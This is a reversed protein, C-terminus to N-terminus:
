PKHVDGHVRVAATYLQYVGSRADAWLVQFAGNGTGVLGFYEGGTPYRDGVAGNGPTGPCSLETSVRVEPLFTEGGDLSSTFYLDQCQNNPDNRRDQWAIGLVGNRSVALAATGRLTRPDSARDIRVPKSWSYGRDTSRSFYLGKEPNYFVEDEPDLTKGWDGWAAYLRDPFAESYVDAIIKPINRQRIEAVFFPPSFTRAGDTSFVVWLRPRKVRYHEVGPRQDTGWDHYAIVLTGDSLTVMNMEQLEMNSLVSPVPDSFSRGRDLSRSVSIATFSSDAAVRYGHVAAHYITGGEPGDTNDVLIDEQDYSGGRGEPVAVPGLWTLGGDRSRFVLSSVAPQNPQPDGLVSVYATGDRGFAVWADACSTPNIREPDFLSNLDSAQWNRGGDFTAFALCHLDAFPAQPEFAVMSAAVLNNPDVPNVALHPEVHPLDPRSMTVPTNPGVEILPVHQAVMTRTCLLLGPGLLVALKYPSPFNVATHVESSQFMNRCLGLSGM